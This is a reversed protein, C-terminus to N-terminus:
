WYNDHYDREEEETMHHIVKNGKCTPCPVTEKKDDHQSVLADIYGTGKCTTCPKTDPM